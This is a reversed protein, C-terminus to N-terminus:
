WDELGVFKWEILRGFHAEGDEREEQGGQAENRGVEGEAEVFAVAAVVNHAVL